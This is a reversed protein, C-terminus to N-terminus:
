VASQPASAVARCGPGSGLPAQMKSVKAGAVGHLYTSSAGAARPPSPGTVLGTGCCVQQFGVSWSICHGPTCTVKEQSTVTSTPDEDNSPVSISGCPHPCLRPDSAGGAAGTRNSQRTARPCGALMDQSGGATHGQVGGGVGRGMLGASGATKPAPLGSESKVLTPM